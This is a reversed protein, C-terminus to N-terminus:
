SHNHTICQFKVLKGGVLLQVMWNVLLSLFLLYPQVVLVEKEKNGGKKCNSSERLAQKGCHNNLFVWFM